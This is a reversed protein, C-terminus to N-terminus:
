GDHGVVGEEEDELESIDNYGGYPSVASRDRLRPSPRVQSTLSRNLAGSAFKRKRTVPTTDPGSKERALNGANPRTPTVM